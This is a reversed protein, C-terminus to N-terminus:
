VPGVDRIAPQSLGITCTAANAIAGSFRTFIVWNASAITAGASPPISLFDSSKLHWLQDSAVTVPSSDWTSTIQMYYTEGTSWTMDLRAFIESMPTDVWSTSSLRLLGEFRYRRNPLMRLAFATTGYSSLTPTDNLAAVTIAVVQENGYGKPSAGVSCVAVLSGAGTHNSVSLNGAVTGTITNGTTNLNGGTATTLLPNVFLNNNKSLTITGGLTADALGPAFYTLTNADPVSLVNFVGNALAQTIRSAWFQEGVKWGHATSNVTVVGGSSITDGSITLVDGVQYDLVSQPLTSKPNPYRASVIGELITSTRGAGLASYHIHDVPNIYLANAFGSADTPNVIQGYSDVLLVDAYHARAYAHNAANIRLFRQMYAKTARAEGTVVPTCLALILKIGRALIRDYIETNNAIIDFDTFPGGQWFASIDNAGYSQMIVLSPNYAFVQDDLRLLGNVAMDGNQASNAVINLPHGLRMQMLGVWSIYQNIGGAKLFVTGTLAAALTPKDSLVMTLTNADIRTLPLLRAKQTPAYTNCWFRGITGTPLGHNTYTFTLTGTAVAYAATVTPSYEYFDTMSDGFLVTAVGNRGITLQPVNADITSVTVGAGAAAYTVLLGTFVEGPVSRSFIVDGQAMGLFSGNSFYQSTGSVEASSDGSIYEWLPTTPTIQNIVGHAAIGYKAIAVERSIRVPPNLTSYSM